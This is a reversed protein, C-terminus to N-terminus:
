PRAHYLTKNFRLPIERDFGEPEVTIEFRLVAQDEFRFVALHYRADGERVRKFELPVREALLTHVTGQVRAGVARSDAGEGDRVAITVLARNPARVLGYRSAYEPTIEATNVVAYHVTLAGFQESGNALADTALLLAFAVALIRRIM